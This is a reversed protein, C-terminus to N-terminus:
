PRRRLAEMLGVVAWGVGVGVNALLGTYRFGDVADWQEVPVLSTAFAVALMAAMVAFVIRTSPHLRRGAGAILALGVAEFPVLLPPATVLFALDFVGPVVLAILVLVYGIRAARGFVLWVGPLLALLGAAILVSSLGEMMAGWFLPDRGLLRREENFSTPGHLSIYVPWLAAMLVGGVAVFWWPWRRTM